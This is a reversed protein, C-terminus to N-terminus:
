KRKKKGRGHSGDHGHGHGKLTQPIYVALLQGDEGTTSNPVLTPGPQPATTGHAQVDLLWWGKGLIKSANIVGSSEWTGPRLAPPKARM